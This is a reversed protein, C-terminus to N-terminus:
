KLGGLGKGYDHGPKWVDKNYSILRKFCEEREPV